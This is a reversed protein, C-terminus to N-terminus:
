FCFLIGCEVDKVSVFGIEKYRSDMSVARNDGLVFIHGDPVVVPESALGQFTSKNVVYEDNVPSDNVFVIGNEDIYVTDGEMAIIRKVFHFGDAHRAVIIDNYQPTYFLNQGIYTQRDKMTPYMSDGSIYGIALIVKFLLVTVTVTIILDKLFTKVSSAHRAESRNTEDSTTNFINKMDKNM